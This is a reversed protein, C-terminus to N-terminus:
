WTGSSFYSAGRMSGRMKVAILKLALSVACLPSTVLRLPIQTLRVYATDLFRGM